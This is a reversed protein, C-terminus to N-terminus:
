QSGRLRRLDSHHGAVIEPHDALIPGRRSSPTSGKDKATRWGVSEDLKAAVIVVVPIIEGYNSQRQAAALRNTRVCV